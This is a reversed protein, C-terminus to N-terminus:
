IRTGLIGLDAWSDQLSQAVAASAPMTAVRGRVEYVQDQSSEPKHRQMTQKVAGYSVVTVTLGGDQSTVRQKQSAQHPSNYLTERTAIM